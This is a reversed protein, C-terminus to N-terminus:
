EMTGFIHNLGGSVWPKQPLSQQSIPPEMFPPIGIAPHNIISFGSIFHILVPPVGMEPFRWIITPSKKTPFSRM